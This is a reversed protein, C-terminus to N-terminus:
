ELGDIGGALQLRYQGPTVGTRKKFEKIFHSASGFGNATAVEKLAKGFDGLDCKARDIRVVMQYNHVTYGTLLQVLEQLKKTDM